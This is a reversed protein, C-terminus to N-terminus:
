TLVGIGASIHAIKMSDGCCVSQTAGMCTLLVRLEGELLFHASKWFNMKSKDGSLCSIEICPELVEINNIMNSYLSTKQTAVCGFSWLILTEPIMCALQSLRWIGDETSGFDPECTSLGLVCLSKPTNLGQCHSVPTVAVFFVQWSIWFSNKLYYVVGILLLASLHTSMGPFWMCCGSCLCCLFWGYRLLCQGKSM